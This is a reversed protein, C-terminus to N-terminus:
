YAQRELSCWTRNHKWIRHLIMTFVHAIIQDHTTCFWQDFKTESCRIINEINQWWINTFAQLSIFSMMFPLLLYLKHKYTNTIHHWPTVFVWWYGFIEVITHILCPLRLSSHSKVFFVQGFLYIQSLKHGMEMWIQLKLRFLTPCTNSQNCVLQFYWSLCPRSHEYTLESGEVMYINGRYIHISMTIWLNM